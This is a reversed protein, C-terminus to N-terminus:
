VLGYVEERIRRLTNADLSREVGRTQKEMEVFKQELKQKLEERYKSNSIDARVLDAMARAIKTLDNPSLESDMSLRFLRDQILRISAESVVRDGDPFAETLYQAAQHSYKIQELVEKLDQAVRHLASKSFRLEVGASELLGNVAQTMEVFNQFKHERIIADVQSQIEAPLQAYTSPTM